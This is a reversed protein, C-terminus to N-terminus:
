LLCCFSTPQQMLISWLIYTFGSCGASGLEILDKDEDELISGDNGSVHDIPSKILMPCNCMDHAIDHRGCGRCLRPKRM